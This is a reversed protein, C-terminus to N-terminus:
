AVFKIRLKQQPQLSIVIEREPRLGLSTQADQVAQTSHITPEWQAAWEAEADSLRIKNDPERESGLAFNGRRSIGM